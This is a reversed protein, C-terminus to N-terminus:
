QKFDYFVFFVAGIIFGFAVMYNWKMSEKFYFIAILVFVSITIVEQLIKLQFITLTQFGIRNAPVMLVYEFFAIGWSVLIAQWVPYEMKKLHGYWAFNMFINSIVLLVVTTLTNM